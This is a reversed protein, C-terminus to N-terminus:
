NDTFVITLTSGDAISATCGDFNDGKADGNYHGNKYTCPSSVGGGTFQIAFNLKAYPNTPKNQFLATFGANVPKRTTRDISVFSTGLNVPARNGEDGSGNGWTCARKEEVGQNNVYYQASTAKGDWEYYASQDPNALEKTEGPNITLPLTESETGPYDTRCISVPKSLKSQVQVKVRTSGRGCLSKSISGDAMELKGNQNCFLGGVSEKTSGQPKPWSMKLYPNPCSYSCFRGPSCCSGDPCSGTPVTMINHYADVRKSLGNAPAQIGTYGGLGENHVLIAGYGVPFQSCDLKGNPFEKDCDSCNGDNDVPQYTLPDPSNGTEALPSSQPQKTPEPAVVSAPPASHEVPAKDETDHNNEVVQVTATPTPPPAVVASSSLVGDVWTLTGNAIGNRVDDETIKQGNLEYVVVTAVPGQVHVVLDARKAAVAHRRAHYGHPKALATAAATAFAVAVYRM